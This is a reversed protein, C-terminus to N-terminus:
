AGFPLMRLRLENNINCFSLRSGFNICTMIQGFDRLLRTRTAVELISQAEKTAPRYLVNTDFLPQLASVLEVDLASFM